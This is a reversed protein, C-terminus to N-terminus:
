VDVICQALWLGDPHREVRLDTFTAGKVEVAPAHRAVDVPEGLAVARLSSGDIAVHFRGFLCNESAMAYVIENLWDVLLVGDDEAECQVDVRRSAGVKAPDDVVVAALALAAQEFAEAKTRGIGRVGVDAGHSYHEWHPPAAAEAM